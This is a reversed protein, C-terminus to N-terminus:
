STSSSMVSKTWGKRSRVCNNRQISWTKLNGMCLLHFRPHMQMVPKSPDSPSSEEFITRSADPQHIDKRRDIGIPHSPVFTPPQGRPTVITGSGRSTATNESPICDRNAWWLNIFRNGMVADPARLAAEAEERKSFQVFAQESNM